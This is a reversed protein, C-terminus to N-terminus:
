RVRRATGDGGGGPRSGPFGGRGTRRPGAPGPAAGRGRRPGAEPRWRVPPGARAPPSPTRAPPSLSPPGVAPPAPCAAQAPRHPASPAPAPAKPGRAQWGKGRLGRRPAAPPTGAPRRAPPAAAGARPSAPRLTDFAAAPAPSSPHLPVTSPWAPPRMNRGGAGGSRHPRAGATGRAPTPPGQAAAYVQGMQRVTGGPPSPVAWSTAWAVCAVRPVTRVLVRDM